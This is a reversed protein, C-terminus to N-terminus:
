GAYDLTSQTERQSIYLVVESKIIAGRPNHSPKNAIWKIESLFQGKASLLGGFPFNDNCSMILSYILNEHFHLFESSAKNTVMFWNDGNIDKGVFNFFLHPKDKIVHM